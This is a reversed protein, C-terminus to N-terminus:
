DLFEIPNLRSALIAPRYATAMTILTISFTVLLVDTWVVKVPYASVVANAMGLGVLGYRDQLYCLSLGLVLGFIAGVFAIIIGQKLFIQRIIKHTAGVAFLIAMDRRKEIALM